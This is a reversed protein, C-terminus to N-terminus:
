LKKNLFFFVSNKIKGKMSTRNEGQVRHFILLLFEFSVQYFMEITKNLM